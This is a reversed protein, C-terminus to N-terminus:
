TKSVPAPCNTEPSFDTSGDAKFVEPNPTYIPGVVLPKAPLITQDLSSTLTTDITQILKEKGDVIRISIAYPRNKVICHVPPSELAIKDWFPFIKTRTEIPPGGRPNEYRVEAYSEEPLPANRALTLVYTASAIRYNFIFVKGQVKLPEDKDSRECSSLAAIIACLGIFFGSRKM